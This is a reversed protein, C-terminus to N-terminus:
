IKVGRERLKRKIKELEFLRSAMRDYGGKPELGLSEAEVCKVMIKEIAENVKRYGSADCLLKFARYVDPKLRIGFTKRRSSFALKGSKELYSAKRRLGRIGIV